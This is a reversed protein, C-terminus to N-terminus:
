TIVNFPQEVWESEMYWDEYEDFPHFKVGRPKAKRTVDHFKKSVLRRQRNRPMFIDCDPPEEDFVFNKAKSLNEGKEILTPRIVGCEGVVQLLYYDLEQGEVPDIKVKTAKYGTLGAEEWASVLKPSVFELGPDIGNVRDYLMCGTVVRFRAGDPLDAKGRAIAWGEYYGLKSTYLDLQIVTNTLLHNFEYYKNM